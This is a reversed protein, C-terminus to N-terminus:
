AVAGYLLGSIYQLVVENFVAEASPEYRTLAHAAKGEGNVDFPLVKIARPEQSLMSVFETYVLYLRGFSGRAFENALFSGLTYCDAVDVDEVSAYNGNLIEAGRREFYDVAKKGVPVICCKNELIIENAAKLVNNNYGGALGRDGAIVVLCVKDSKQKKTYVSSLDKNNKMIDVLTNQLIDFFTKTTELRKKARVLKSSAVLEMAKTIHMTNEVSRIRVKIDKMSSAAM